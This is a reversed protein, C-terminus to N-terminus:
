MIIYYCHLIPLIALVNILRISNSYEGARDDIMKAITTYKTKGIRVANLKQLM